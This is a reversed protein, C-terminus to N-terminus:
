GIIIAVHFSAGASAHPLTMITLGASCVGSDMSRSASSVASAPNGGPTTVTRLPTPSTVPRARASCSPTSLTANVPLVSTPRAIARAAVPFRLRTESSSPPLDGFM